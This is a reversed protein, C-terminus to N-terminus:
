VTRIPKEEISIQANYITLETNLAEALYELTWKYTVGATLNFDAWVTQPIRTDTSTNVQGVIAGGEQVDVLVGAGAIEKSEYKAALLVVPAGGNESVSIKFDASSNSVDISWIWIVGLRYNGSVVPTFTLGEGYTEYVNQQQNALAVTTQGPLYLGPIDRDYYPLTNIDGLGEISQGNVDKLPRKSQISASTEDGTNTGSQDNIVNIQASTVFKNTTGSDDVNDADPFSLTVNAADGGVGDGTVSQVGGGAIAVDGVGELTEGNVTKIPRKTQITAQTEDGTNIGSQGAILAREAPTLFLRTASEGIGDILVSLPESFKGSGSLSTDTFPYTSSFDKEWTSGLPFVLVREQASVAAIFVDNADHVNIVFDNNVSGNWIACFYKDAAAATIDPLTLKIDSNQFVPSAIVLYDRTTLAQDSLVTEPYAETIGKVSILPNAPDANDVSVDLEGPAADVSQVGSGGGGQALTNLADTVTAGSVGSDNEIDSSDKIASGYSNSGITGNIVGNNIINGDHAIVAINLVGGADVVIDGKLRADFIDVIAGDEVKIAVAADIENVFCSVTGSVARIGINNLGGNDTIAGINAVAPESSTSAYLFGTNNDGESNIEKVQLARPQTGTAEYNVGVSDNGRMLVQGVELFANQTTGTALYGTQNNGNMIMSKCNIASRDAGNALYCTQGPTANTLLTQITVEARASGTVCVGNADPEILTIRSNKLDVQVDNLAVYGGLYNSAGLDIISTAIFGSPPPNFAQVSINAQALTKVAEVSNAGSNVDNGGDSVFVDRAADGPLINSM